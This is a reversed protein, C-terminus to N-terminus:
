KRNAHLSTYKLWKWIRVEAAAPVWGAAQADALSIGAALLVAYFVAPIAVLTAPLALPNRVHSLVGWLVFTSVLAPLFRVFPGTHALNAWSLLSEVQLLNM